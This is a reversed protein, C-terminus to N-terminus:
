RPVVLPTGGRRACAGADGSGEPSVAQIRGCAWIAASAARSGSIAPASLRREGAGEFQDIGIELIRLALMPLAREADEIQQQLLMVVDESM